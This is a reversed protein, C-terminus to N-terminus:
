ITSDETARSRALAAEFRARTAAGMRGMGCAKRMTAILDEDPLGTVLLTKALSVLMALPVTAPDLTEQPAPAKFALPADPLLNEPWIFTGVEEETRPLTAPILAQVRERIERGARAFGHQRSLSQVLLDERVPGQKNVEQQILRILTPTYTEKFFLAQDPVADPQPESAEPETITSASNAQSM